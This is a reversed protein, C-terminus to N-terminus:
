FKEELCACSGLLSVKAKRLEEWFVRRWRFVGNKTALEEWFVMSAAAWRFFTVRLRNGGLEEGVGKSCFGDIKKFTWVAAARAVKMVCTRCGRDEGDGGHVAMVEAPNHFLKAAALLEQKDFNEHTHLGGNADFLDENLSHSDLDHFTPPPAPAPVLLDSGLALPVLFLTIRLM